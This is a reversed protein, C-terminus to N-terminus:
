GAAVRKPAADCTSRRVFPSLVARATMLPRTSTIRGRVVGRFRRNAIRRAARARTEAGFRGAGREADRKASRPAPRM